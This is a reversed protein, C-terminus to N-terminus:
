EALVLHYATLTSPDSAVGPSAKSENTHCVRLVIRGSDVRTSVAACQRGAVPAGTAVLRGFSDSWLEVKLAASPDSWTALAFLNGAAVTFASGGVGECGNGGSKGVLLDAQEIVRSGDPVKCISSVTSPSTCSGVAAVHSLALALVAVSFPVRIRRPTAM